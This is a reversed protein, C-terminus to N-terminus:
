HSFAQFEKKMKKQSKTHMTYPMLKTTSSQCNDIITMDYNATTEEGQRTSLVLVATAAPGAMAEHSRRPTMFIWPFTIRM